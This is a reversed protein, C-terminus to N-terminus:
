TNGEFQTNMVAYRTSGSSDYQLVLPTKFLYTSYYDNLAPSGAALEFDVPVTVGTEWSNVDNPELDAQVINARVVIPKKYMVISGSTASLNNEAWAIFNPGLENVMHLAMYTSGHVYITDNTSVSTSSSFDASFDLDLIGGKKNFTLPIPVSNGGSSYTLHIVNM